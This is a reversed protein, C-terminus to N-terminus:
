QTYSNDQTLIKQLQKRLDDVSVTKKGGAVEQLLRYLEHTLAQDPLSGRQARVIALALESNTEVLRFNSEAIKNHAARFGELNKGSLYDQEQGNQAIEGKQPTQPKTLGNGLKHQAFLEHIKKQTKPGPKKPNADTFWYQIGRETRGLANAFAQLGYTNILEKAEIIYQEPKSM